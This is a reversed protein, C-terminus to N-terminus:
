VQLRYIGNKELNKLYGQYTDNEENDGEIWEQQELPQATDKVVITGLRVGNQIFFRTSHVYSIRKVNGQEEREVEWILLAHDGGRTVILDEPKVEDLAVSFSNSQLLRVDINEFLRFHMIVKRLFNRKLSSVLKKGHIGFLVHSILGSCDVGLGHNSLFKRIEPPSLMALEVKEKLAFIKAEQIIEDASGKGVLVRIGAPFKHPTSMFYPCSVEVDGFRLHLYSDIEKMGNEHMRQIMFLLFELNCIVIELYHGFNLYEFEM